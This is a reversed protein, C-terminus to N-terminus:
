FANDFSFFNFFVSESYHIKQKMKSINLLFAHLLCAFFFLCLVLCKTENFMLSSKLSMCM